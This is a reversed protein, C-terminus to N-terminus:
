LSDREVTLQTHIMPRDQRSTTYVCSVGASSHRMSRSQKHNWLLNLAIVRVKLRGSERKPRGSESPNGTRTHPGTSDRVAAEELIPLIIAVM